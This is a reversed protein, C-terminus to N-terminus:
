KVEVCDTFYTSTFSVCQVVSVKYPVRASCCAHSLVTKRM